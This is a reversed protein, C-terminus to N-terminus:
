RPGNVGVPDREGDTYLTHTRTHMRVSLWMRTLCLGTRLHGGMSWCTVAVPHTTGEALFMSHSHKCILGRCDERLKSIYNFNENSFVYSLRFM